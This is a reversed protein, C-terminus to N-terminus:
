STIMSGATAQSLPEGPIPQLVEKSANSEITHGGTLVLRERGALQGVRSRHPRQSVGSAEVQDLQQEDLSGQGRALTGLAQAVARGAARVVQPLEGLPAEDLLRALPVAPLTGPTM